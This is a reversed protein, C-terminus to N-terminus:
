DVGSRAVGRRLDRKGWWPFSQTVSYKTAGIQGPLLTPKDPDIEQLEIRLMPDDLAGASQARAEAAEVEHRLAALEASHRDAWDLLEPVSAGLTADLKSEAAVAISLCSVALIVAQLARIRPSGQQSLNVGTRGM